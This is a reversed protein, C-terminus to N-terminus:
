ADHGRERNRRRVRIRADLADDVFEDAHQARVSVEADALEVEVKTLGAVGFHELQKSLRALVAVLAILVIAAAVALSGFGHVLNFTDIHVTFLEDEGGIAVESM